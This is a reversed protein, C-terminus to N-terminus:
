RNGNFISRWKSFLKRFGSGYKLYDLVKRAQPYNPMIKLAEELCKIAEDTNNEIGNLYVSMNYLSRAKIESAKPAFNYNKVVKKYYQYSEKFLGLLFYNYGLDYCILPDEIKLLELAQELKERAKFIEGDFRLIKQGMTFECYSNAPYGTLLYYYKTINDVDKNFDAIVFLCFLVGWRFDIKDSNDEMYKNLYNKFSLSWSVLELIEQRYNEENIKLNSQEKILSVYKNINQKRKVM